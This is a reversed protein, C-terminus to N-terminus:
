HAGGADVAAGASAPRQTLWITGILALFLFASGLFIDDVARTFAQQDILRNVQALAQEMSLGSATLGSLTQAFVGQGQVLTETMHAHHLAARSEWLTTSISVGMAGATIRAFNSLGAAAPIREPGLGSLTLTTLPIFFFAMAGGQILTPILIHVFDTQTTFQSRMWLVLAFVVFAGTAMRRPDWQGVKRGVLPTLLIAFLGV